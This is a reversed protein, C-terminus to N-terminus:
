GSRRKHGGRRRFISDFTVKNQYEFDNGIINSKKSDTLMYAKPADKGPQQKISYYLDRDAPINAKDTTPTIKRLAFSSNDRIYFDYDNANGSLDVKYYRGPHSKFYIDMDGPFRYDTNDIALVKEPKAKIYEMIPTNMITERNNSENFYDLFIDLPIDNLHVKAM